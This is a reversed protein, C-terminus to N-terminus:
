RGRRLHRFAEPFRAVIDGAVAGFAADSRAIIMGAHGHVYGGTLAAEYASLGQGLMAVIAGALVDGSGATALAPTAFPLVATRGDPAAIATHPGKLLVIHGWEAACRRAHEIRRANVEDVTMGTLRALEGPHPTLISRTPLRAPWDPLTALINLADADVVVRGQWSENLIGSPSCLTEIFARASETTTLGPGVLLADYGKLAAILKEAGAATHAGDEAPLPLWTLEPLGGALIPHLPSPIALTVLGAGARMASQGSLAVAGTYNLSGGAIMAKGFTGKHADQPRAPLLPVVNEPVILEVKVDDALHPAIGIDAVGLLGCAGAGPFEYHGWKAFGFTVTVDASLAAPDIEGTDCNLGSPCDVALVPLPPWPSFMEEDDDWDDEWEEGTGDESLDLDDDELLADLNSDGPASIGPRTVGLSEVEMMPFRPIGLLPGFMEESEIRRRAAIEEKVVALLEALQGEIPRAAGTGLLADVILAARGIEERLKALDPDNDAWLIAVGRRRRKLTRFGEDKKIDRKWVYVTVDHGADLLTHAAVLGDGGNNGPGVLILANEGPEVLRLGMAVGAVARGAMQMMAAYSQGGADTLQEIRRMEEVSVLKM